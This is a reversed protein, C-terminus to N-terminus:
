SSRQVGNIIRAIRIDVDLGSLKDRLPFAGLARAEEYLADVIRFNRAVDPKEGAVLNRELAALLTSNKVM